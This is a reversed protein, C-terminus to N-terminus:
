SGSCCAPIASGKGRMSRIASAFIPWINANRGRRGLRAARTGLWKGLEYSTADVPKREAVAATESFDAISFSPASAPLSASGTACLEGRSEVEISLM